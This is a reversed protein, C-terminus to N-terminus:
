LVDSFGRRTASFVVYGIYFVVLSVVLYIGLGIWDPLRGWLLVNRAQDIIFTLPNLQFVWRYKEPVSDVPMMASSLFLMAMSLVGTIQGIDRFYVGFSAMLWSVGMMLVVLPLMVLPFLPTTAAIHGDMVLRLLLFVLLNMLTHFLASFVMPWPLIELPFIVRKVFNPNGVILVVSKGLCEAFFGHVILGAFLIISFQTQGAEIEPWRGKMVTGFAFTYVMLLLFPSILSWLLGFSAGRYRGLVDRKTMERTLSWHRGLASWPAANFRGSSSETTM